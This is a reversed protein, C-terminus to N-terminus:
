IHEPLKRCQCFHNSICLFALFQGMTPDNDHQDDIMMGWGERWKEERKYCGLKRGHFCFLKRQQALTLPSRYTTSPGGAKSPFPASGHRSLVHLGTWVHESFCSTERLWLFSGGVDQKNRSWLPVNQYMRGYVLVIINKETSTISTLAIKSSLSTSCKWPSQRSPIGPIPLILRGCGWLCDNKCCTRTVVHWMNHWLKNPYHKVSDVQCLDRSALKSFCLRWAWDQCWNVCVDSPELVIPAEVIGSTYMVAASLGHQFSWQVWM